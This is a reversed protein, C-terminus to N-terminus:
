HIIPLKPTEEFGSLSQAIDSPPVISYIYYQYSLNFVVRLARYVKPELLALNTRRNFPM